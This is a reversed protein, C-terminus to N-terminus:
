GNRYPKAIWPNYRVEGRTDQRGSWVDMLSGVDIAVSGCEQIRQCYLKGLIGAGVFWLRGPEFRRRLIEPLFARFHSEREHAVDYKRAEGPVRIWEVDGFRGALPKIEDPAVPGIVGSVERALGRFAGTVELAWHAHWGPFLTADSIMGGRILGAVATSM